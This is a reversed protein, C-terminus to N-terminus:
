SFFDRSGAGRERVLKGQINCHIQFYKLISSIYKYTNLYIWLINSYISIYYYYIYIYGFTNISMIIPIEGNYEWQLMKAMCMWTCIQKESDVIVVKRVHLVVVNKEGMGMSKNWTEYLRHFFKM